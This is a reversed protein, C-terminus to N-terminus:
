DSVLNNKPNIGLWRDLIIGVASRVSLHNFDELGVVPMLLYHCRNLVTDSLGQGTGFVLLVPREERWLFGQSHYDIERIDKYEQASTAVLIPDKGEKQKIFEITEDLSFTKEVRKVADYRNPNYKQGEPSLWFSLFETAIAHQDKLRSVLFFNEIGYTASSRAIDHIDLSTISSDGVRFEGRDKVIIETHMLAVYHNPIFKKGLAKEEGSLKNGKFWDFREFITQQAAAGERWKKIGAHNGSRLVDPIKLGNWEVPLGYQPHDLFAGEFSEEKVSEEKGVVKPLLRLIGELLIQAPLDGGMLVYDGISVIQDAYYKLVREDMGEYRCCVLILHNDVLSEDVLIKSTQIKKILSKLVPQTLKTGKPSFFLKLGKGWKEEVLNIAREVVEPKLVMGVGHGVTPEDIREKPECIDSFRVFNFEVLGQEVARGIISTKLFSDYLEPFVTLISIKM